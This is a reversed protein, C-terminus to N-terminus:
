MDRVAPHYPGPAFSGRRGQGGGSGEEGQGRATDRESEGRGNRRDDDYGLRLRDSLAQILNSYPRRAKLPTRKANALASVSAELQDDAWGQKPIRRLFAALHPEGRTAWGEIKRAKVLWEPDRETDNPDPVTSNPVTSDATGVRQTRTVDKNRARFARVREANAKRREILMGAYQYWDHIDLSRRGKDVFGAAILGDLFTASADPWGSGIAIAGPSRGRLDGNPANEVAWHWFTILHGVAAFRSIGLSEAMAITKHHEALGHHVEIWTM